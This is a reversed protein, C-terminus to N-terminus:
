VMLILFFPNKNYYVNIKNSNNRIVGLKESDFDLIDTIKSQPITLSDIIFVPKIVM